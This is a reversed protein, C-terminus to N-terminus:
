PLGLARPPGAAGAALLVGCATTALANVTLAVRLIRAPDDAHRSPSMAAGRKSGWCGSARGGPTPNGNGRLYHGGERRPALSESILSVPTPASRRRQRVARWSLWSSSDGSASIQVRCTLKM